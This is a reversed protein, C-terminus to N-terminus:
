GDSASVTRRLQSACCPPAGRAALAASAPTRGLPLRAPPRLDTVAERDLFEHASRLLRQQAAHVQLQVATNMARRNCLAAGQVRPCRVDCRVHAAAAEGPVPTTAYGPTLWAGFMGSAESQKRWQDFWVDATGCGHRRCLLLRRGPAQPGRHGCLAYERRDDCHGELTRPVQQLVQVRQEGHMGPIGPVPPSFGSAALSRLEWWSKKAPKLM